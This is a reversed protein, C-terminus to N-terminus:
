GQWYGQSNNQMQNQAQNHTQNLSNYYTQNHSNQQVFGQSVQGVIALFRGFGVLLSNKTGKFDEFVKPSHFKFSSYIRASDDWNILKTFNLIYQVLTSQSYQALQYQYNTDSYDALSYGTIVKVLAQIYPNNLDGLQLDNSAAIGTDILSNPNLNNQKLFEKQRRLRNQKIITQPNLTTSYNTTILRIIQQSNNAISNLIPLQGMDFGTGETGAKQLMTGLNSDNGLIESNRQSEGTNQNIGQSQNEVREMGFSQQSNQNESYNQVQNSTNIEM